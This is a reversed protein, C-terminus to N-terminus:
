ARRREQYQGEKKNRHQSQRLNLLSKPNQCRSESKRTQGDNSKYLDESETDTRDRDTNEDMSNIDSGAALLRARLQLGKRLREDVEDSDSDSGDALLRAKTKSAKELMTPTKFDSDENPVDEAENESWEFAKKPKPTDIEIENDSEVIPDQM